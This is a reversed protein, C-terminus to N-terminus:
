LFRKLIRQSHPDLDRRDRIMFHLGNGDAILLGGPSKLRRIDDESKLILATAGHDTDVQWTSPTAFSSVSLIRSIIPMFERQTLEEEILHRENEPLNDLSDIWQLEKGEASMLSISTDPATLAFARVPTVGEHAMGGAGVKTLVLQGLPNRTLSFASSTM